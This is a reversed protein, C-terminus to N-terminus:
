SVFHVRHDHHLASPVRLRGFKTRDGRARCHSRIQNIARKIFLDWPIVRDIEALFGERRTTKKKDNWALSSFTTQKM